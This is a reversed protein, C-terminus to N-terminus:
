INVKNDNVLKIVGREIVFENYLVCFDGDIYFVYVSFLNKLLQKCAQSM